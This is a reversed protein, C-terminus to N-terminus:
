NRNYLFRNTNGGEFSVMNTQCSENSLCTQDYNDFFSNLGAGYILVNSSDKIRLGLAKACTNAVGPGTQPCSYVPDNYASNVPYPLFATPNSQYYPTETQIMGLFVAVM